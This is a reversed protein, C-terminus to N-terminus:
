IRSTLFPLRMVIIAVNFALRSWPGALVLTLYERRLGLLMGRYQM